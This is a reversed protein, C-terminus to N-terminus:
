CDIVTHMHSCTVPVPQCETVAEIVKTPIMLQLETM